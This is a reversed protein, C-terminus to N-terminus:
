KFLGIKEFVMTAQIRDGGGFGKSGDSTSTSLTHLRYGRAYFHNIVDELETLNKSGTGLLKEKLTVQYVVYPLDSGSAASFSSSQKWSAGEDPEYLEPQRIHEAPSAPEESPYKDFLATIAARIDDDHTSDRCERLHIAAAKRESSDHSNAFNRVHKECVPCIIKGPLIGSSEERFPSNCMSCYKMM